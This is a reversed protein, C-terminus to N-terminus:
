YVLQMNVQKTPAPNQGMALNVMIVWKMWQAGVLAPAAVLRRLSSDKHRQILGQLLTLLDNQGLCPLQSLILGVILREATVDQGHVRQLEGM